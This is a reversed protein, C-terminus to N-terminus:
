SNATVIYFKGNADVYMSCATTDAPLSATPIITPIVGDANMLTKASAVGNWDVIFADHNRNFGGNGVVFAANSITSNYKGIVTMYDDNANTYFGGAHSYSKSAKTAYGEAHSGRGSAISELGEAHSYDGYAKTNYGEAHSYQGSALTSGGETHSAQSIASTEWGEAHLGRSNNSNASVFTKYGETHSNQILASTQFGEAHSGDGSVITQYGEAHSGDSNGSILTEYGEAHIGGYIVGSLIASCGNGEVHMGNINEYYSSALTAFGETHSGQAYASTNSGEAHSASGIAYTASGESHAYYGNANTERGEAHSGMGSAICREGEAHSHIAYASTGNGEAHANFNLARTDEGEAHAADGSAINWKGECHAATDYSINKYGETHSYDGIASTNYGEVFSYTGNATGNTNVSIVGNNIVLDTGAEISTGGGGVASTNIATITNNEGAFTLKDQLINSWVSWVDNNNVTVNIHKSPSGDNFFSFKFWADDGLSYFDTLPVKFTYPSWGEPNDDNFNKALLFIQKGADYAAKIYAYPTVNYEAVFVKNEKLALGTDVDASLAYDSLDMSTDGICIWAKTGENETVIWERYQDTGTAGADKVLYINKTEAKSPELTPGEENGDTVIFNGVKGLEEKTAYETSVTGSLGDIKGTVFSETAYGKGDIKSDVLEGITNESKCVQGDAYLVTKGDNAETLEDFDVVNFNQEAM